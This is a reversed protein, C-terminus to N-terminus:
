SRCIINRSELGLQPQSPGLKVYKNNNDDTEKKSLVDGDWAGTGTEYGTGTGAPVRSRGGARAGIRAISRYKAAAGITLQNILIFM